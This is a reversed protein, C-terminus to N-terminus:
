IKVANTKHLIVLTLWFRKWIVMNRLCSHQLKLALGPVGPINDTPDGALAQLDVMKSPPVGFKEVVQDVGVHYNKMQDYMMISPSILQMLDKDSSIITVKAGAETALRAYTAILDDAEYNEKEICPLNFACTAQRILSFQPRLDEPPAERNAKYEPYIDNRFNKSAHDFIVAFHTPVVGLRAHRADQLLKWIMNCFGAVAGIPLGDTKRKLPPLAHYARFVYASGDVLFLHDGKNM